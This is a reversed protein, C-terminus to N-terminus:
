LGKDSGLFGSKGKAVKIHSSEATAATEIIKAAVAAPWDVEGSSNILKAPLRALEPEVPPVAVFSFAPRVYMLPALTGDPSGPPIHRTWPLGAGRTLNGIGVSEAPLGMVIAVQSLIVVRADAVPHARIKSKPLKMCVVPLKSQLKRSATDDRGRGPAM